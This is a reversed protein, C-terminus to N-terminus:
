PAGAEAAQEIFAFDIPLNLAGLIVIAISIAIGLPTPSTLFRLQAGFLSLIWGTFWLLCLGGMAATVGLVFRSTVKIVRTAYLLYVALFISFTALVAQSVIGDFQLDYYRSAVGLLAGEVLAYLTSFIPAAKYAFVGAIGFIFALLFALWTWSPTLAVDQGQVAVIEVQSWGFAAGLIVLLILLATIAYTGAVTMSRRDAGGETIGRAFAQANLAPNRSTTEAGTPGSTQEQPGFAVSGTTM